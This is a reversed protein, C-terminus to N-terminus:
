YNDNFCDQMYITKGSPTLSAISVTEPDEPVDPLDPLPQAITGIAVQFM